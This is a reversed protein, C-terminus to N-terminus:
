EHSRIVDAIDNRGLRIAKVLATDGSNGGANFNKDAGADLLLRVIEIHGKETALTLPTGCEGQAIDPCAEAHLLMRVSLDDGSVCVRDMLWYFEAPGLAKPEAAWSQSVFLSSAVIFIVIRM